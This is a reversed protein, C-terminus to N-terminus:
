HETMREIRDRGLLSRYAKAFTYFVIGFVPPYLKYCYYLKRKDFLDMTELNADKGEQGVFFWFGVSMIIMTLIVGLFIYVDTRAQMSYKDVHRREKERRRVYLFMIFFIIAALPLIIELTILNYWFYNITDIAGGYAILSVVLIAITIVFLVDLTIVLPHLASLTGLDKAGLSIKFIRRFTDGVRGSNMADDRRQQFSM